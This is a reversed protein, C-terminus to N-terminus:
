YLLPYAIIIPELDKAILYALYKHLM